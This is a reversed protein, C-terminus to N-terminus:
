DETANTMLQDELPRAIQQHAMEHLHTPAAQMAILFQLAM